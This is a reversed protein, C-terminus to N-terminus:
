EIVRNSGTRFALAESFCNVKVGVQYNRIFCFCNKFISYM